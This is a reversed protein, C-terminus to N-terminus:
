LDFEQREYKQRSAARQIKGSTTRPLSGARTLVVDHVQIQHSRSVASRVRSAAAAVDLTRIQRREVEAVVVVNERGTVEHAFAAIGDQRAEPLHELVTAEIDYPYHNKGGVIILDKRRGVIFLEGNRRFGLDGTRVWHGALGDAQAWFTERTSKQQGYYGACANEGQIWIEGITGDALPVLRDPEVIAVQQGIPAGCGVVQVPADGEVVFKVVGAALDPRSLPLVTPAVATPTASVVLTAEALGYGAVHAEPRFGWTAYAETFATLSAARIPESGNGLALLSSLDLGERDQESVRSVCHDLGFNPGVTCVARFDSIARLWRVPRQVFSLPSLHVAHGGAQLGAGLGFVLGMDHFYPLWTVLTGEDIPLGERLQSMGVALNHHTVMVGAPQRTSGSTYQLYAVSDPTSQPEQWPAPEWSGALSILVPASHPPLLDAMTAPDDLQHLVVTPMSDALAARLRQDPRRVDPAYLPVGVRGSYLCALFAVVYEISQELLIAVRDAAATSAQLRGALRRARRDLEAYTITEPLAEVRRYRLFTIAIRGPDHEAWHRVARDLPWRHCPRDPALPTTM